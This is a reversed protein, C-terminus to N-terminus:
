PRRNQQQTQRLLQTLRELAEVLELAAVDRAGSQDARIRQMVPTYDAIIAQAQTILGPLDTPLPPTTHTDEADGTLIIQPDAIDATDVDPTSQSLVQRAVQEVYAATIRGAPASALVQEWTTRQQAPDLKVLPRVQSENAPLQNKPVITGLHAVVEHAAVIKNMYNRGMEWRERCYAEFTAYEARYLRQNRITVLAAGVEFFTQLGRTIAAECRSLEDQELPTLAGDPITEPASETPDPASIINALGGGRQMDALNGREIAGSVVDQIKRKRAM